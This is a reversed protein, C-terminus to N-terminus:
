RRGIITAFLGSECDFNAQFDHKDVVAVVVCESGEHQIHGVYSQAEDGVRLMKFKKKRLITCDAKPKCKVRVKMLKQGNKGAKKAKITYKGV